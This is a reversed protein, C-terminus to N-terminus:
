PDRVPDEIEVPSHPGEGLVPADSRPNWIEEAKVSSSPHRRHSIARPALQDVAQLPLMLMTVRVLRLIGEPRAHTPALRNHPALLVLHSRGRVFNSNPLGLAGLAVIIVCQPYAVRPVGVSHAVLQAAPEAVGSLLTDVELATLAAAVITGSPVERGAISVSPIPTTTPLPSPLLLLWLLLPIRRPLVLLLLPLGLLLGLLLRM